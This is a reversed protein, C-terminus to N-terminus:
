RWFAGAGGRALREDVGMARLADQDGSKLAAVEEPTLHYDKIAEDFSMKLQAFFTEDNLARELLQTVAQLSITRVEEGYSEVAIKCNRGEGGSEGIPLLHLTGEGKYLSSVPHPHIDVM